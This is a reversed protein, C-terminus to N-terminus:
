KLEIIKAYGIGRLGLLKIRAGAAKERSDFSGVMVRFWTEGKIQVEVVMAEFGNKELYDSEEGARSLAKFSAVHVAYRGGSPIEGAPVPKVAPETVVERPKIEGQEVEDPRAIAAADVGPAEEEGSTDAPAPEGKKAGAERADRQKQVFESMKRGKEMRNISRRVLIWWVSFAVILVAVSVVVLRPLNLRSRRKGEGPPLEETKEIVATEHLVEEQAGEATEEVAGAVVGEPESVEEVGGEEPGVASPVQEKKSCYCVLEISPVQLSGLERLNKQLQGEGMEEIRCCLLIGEVFTSLPNIKGEDTYLTSCYIVVDSRQGLFYKISEFEKLAFPVTKSVAFSGPGTVSVGDIGVGRSVSKLSSGYLLLDLYGHEEINEVLGSLGPNLFDCDVILVRRGHKAILHAIQLVTFDRSLRKGDVSLALLSLGEGERIKKELQAGIEGFHELERASSFDGSEMFSDVAEEDLFITFGGEVGGCAGKMESREREEDAM